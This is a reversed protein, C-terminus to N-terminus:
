QPSAGSLPRLCGSSLTSSGGASMCIKVLFGNAQAGQRGGVEHCFPMFTGEQLRTHDLWAENKRAAGWVAGHGPNLAAACCYRPDAGAVTGVDILTNFLHQFLAVDPRKGSHLMLNSVEKGCSLGAVRAPMHWVKVLPDHWLKTWVPLVGKCGVIRDGFEDVSRVPEQVSRECTSEKHCVPCKRRESPTM